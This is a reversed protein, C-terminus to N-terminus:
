EQNVEALMLYTQLFSWLRRREMMSCRVVSWGWGSLDYQLLVLSRSHHDSSSTLESELSLSLHDLLIQSLFSASKFVWSKRFNYRCPIVFKNAIWLKCIIFNLGVYWDFWCSTLNNKSRIFADQKIMLSLTLRVNQVLASNTSGECRRRFNVCSPKIIKDARPRVGEAHTSKVYQVYFQLIGTFM